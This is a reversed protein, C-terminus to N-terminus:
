EEDSDEDAADAQLTDNDESPGTKLTWLGGNLRDIAKQIAEKKQAVKSIDAKKKYLTAGAQVFADVQDQLNKGKLKEIAGKDFILKIQAIKALKEAKKRAKERDKVANAEAEKAAHDILDKRRKKEFGSADFIRALQMIYKHDDDDLHKDMFDQTDNQNYMAQANFQPLSANPHRHMFVRYAGLIGENADNTPSMWALDKEADTAKDILGGDEFESTFRKWTVLADKFFAVLVETLHPLEPIMELIKEVAAPREWETGDMTGTKYTADVSILLSPTEIIKEMHQQVETHLPGQELM